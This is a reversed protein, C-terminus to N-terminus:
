STLPAPRSRAPGGARPASRPRGIRYAFLYTLKTLNAEPTMDFGSVVGADVLARGTAYLALDASGRPNRSPSWWRAPRM